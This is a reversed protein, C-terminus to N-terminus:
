QRVFIIEYKLMKYQLNYHNLKPKKAEFLDLILHFKYDIVSMMEKSYFAKEYFSFKKYFLCKLAQMTNIKTSLLAMFEQSIAQRIKPKRQIL